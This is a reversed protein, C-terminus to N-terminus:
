FAGGPERLGCARCPDPSSYHGELNNQGCCARIRFDLFERAGGEALAPRGLVVVGWGGGGGWGPVGGRLARFGESGGTGGGMVVERVGRAGGAESGCRGSREAWGQV